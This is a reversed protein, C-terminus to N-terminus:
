KRDGNSIKIFFTKVTKLLLPTYTIKPNIWFKYDIYEKLKEWEDPTLESIGKLIKKIKKETMKIM